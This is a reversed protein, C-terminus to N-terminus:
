DALGDGNLGSRGLDVEVADGEAPPNVARIAIPSPLGPDRYAVGELGDPDTERILSSTVPLATGGRVSPCASGLLDLRHRKRVLGLEREPGDLLAPDLEDAQPEGVDESEQLRDGDGRLLQLGCECLADPEVSRGDLTEGPNLFG